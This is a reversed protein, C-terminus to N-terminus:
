GPKVTMVFVAAVLLVLDIWSLNSIRQLRATVEADGPGRETRLEGVQKYLPGLLVAGSVASVVYIGLGLKIWLPGFGWDGEFVLWLGGALLALSAPMLLTTGVRETELALEAARNPDSKLAHASQVKLMVAGGVWVAAALIHVFLLLEYLTM